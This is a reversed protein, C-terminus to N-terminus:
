VEARTHWSHAYLTNIHTSDWQKQRRTGKEYRHYIMLWLPVLDLLVNGMPCVSPTAQSFFLPLFSLSLSFPFKFLSPSAPPLVPHYLLTPFLREPPPLEVGLWWEQESNKILCNNPRWAQCPSGQRDELAVTRQAGTAPRHGSGPGEPHFTGPSFSSKWGGVWGVSVCVSRWLSLVDAGVVEASLFSSLSCLGRLIIVPKRGM